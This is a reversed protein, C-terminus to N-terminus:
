WHLKWYKNSKWLSIESVELLLRRHPKWCFAVRLLLISDKDILEFLETSVTELGQEMEILPWNNFAQSKQKTEEEVVVVM